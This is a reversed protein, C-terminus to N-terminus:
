LSCFATQYYNQFLDLALESMVSGHCVCHKGLDRKTGGFNEQTVLQEELGGVQEGMVRGQSM